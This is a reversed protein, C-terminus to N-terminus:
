KFGGGASYAFMQFFFSNIPSSDFVTSKSLYKKYEKNLSKAVLKKTYDAGVSVAGVSFLSLNLNPNDSNYEIDSLLTGGAGKLFGGAFGAVFQQGYFGRGFKKSAGPGFKNYSSFVSQVGKEVGGLGGQVAWNKAWEPDVKVNMGKLFSKSISKATLASLAGRSFSKWFGGERDLTGDNQELDVGV